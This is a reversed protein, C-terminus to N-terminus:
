IKKKVAIMRLTYGIFLPTSYLSRLEGTMIAFILYFVILSLGLSFEKKLVNKNRFLYVIMITYSLSWLFLGLYGRELLRNLIVSELGYLDKETINSKGEIHGLDLQYYGYGNGLIQNDAIQSIVTAFQLARMDVSSGYDNKTETEFMSFVEDSKEQLTPSIAISSGYILLTILSWKMWKSFKLSLLLYLSITIILSILITRSGCTLTGFLSCGVVIYLRYKKLVGIQYSYINILLILLCIYGYDFANQFLSQVRFREAYTYVKGAAALDDDVFSSGEFVQNVFVSEKTIYNIVGFITLIIIVYYSIDVLPKFSEVDKCKVFGYLFLMYQPFLTLLFFGTIEKASSLHPSSFILIITSLFYICILPMMISGKLASYWRQRNNFESILFCVSVLAVSSGLKGPLYPVIIIYFLAMNFFLLACKYKEECIFMSMSIILVSIIAIVNLM